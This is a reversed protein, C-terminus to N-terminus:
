FNNIDIAELCAYDCGSVLAPIALWDDLQLKLRQKRRALLRLAVAIVDIIPLIIAAALNWSAKQYYQPPLTTPSSVNSSM